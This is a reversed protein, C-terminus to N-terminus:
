IYLTGSAGAVSSTTVSSGSPGAARQGTVEGPAAGPEGSHRQGQAFRGGSSADGGFLGAGADRGAPQVDLAQQLLQIAADGGTHRVTLHEVQYGASKMLSTLADRDRELLQAAESKSTDLEVRIVDDRVSLKVTVTGLGAPELAIDLSRLPQGGFPERWVPGFAAGSSAPAPAPASPAPLESLLKQFVQQMPPPTPTAAEGDAHSSSAAKAAIAQLADVAHEATGSNAELPLSRAAVDLPKTATDPLEALLPAGEVRAQGDQLGDPLPAFHTERRTVSWTAAAAVAAGAEAPEAAPAAGALRAFLTAREDPITPVDPMPPVAVTSSALGDASAADLPMTAMEPLAAAQGSSMALREAVQDDGRAEIPLGIAQLMALANALGSASSAATASTVSDDTVPSTGAAMSELGASIEVLPGADGTAARFSEIAQIVSNAIRPAAAGTASEQVALMAPEPAADGSLLQMLDPFADDQTPGSGKNRGEPQAGRVALADGARPASAPTAAMATM